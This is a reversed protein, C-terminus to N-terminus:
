RNRRLWILGGLVAALGLIFGAAAPVAPRAALNVLRVDTGTFEFLYDEVEGNTVTGSYSSAPFAPETTFLRFRAYLQKNPCSVTCFTDVPVSVDFLQNAGSTLAQNIVMESAGTLYGDNNFDIWAVLWGSGTVSIKLADAVTIGNGWSNPSMLTVGDDLLDATAGANGPEDIEADPANGLYIQGTATLIHEAGNSGIKTAHYTGDPLDGLDYNVDTVFAFDAFEKSTDVPGTVFDFVEYAGTDYGSPNTTKSFQVAQSNLDTLTTTLNANDLSANTSVIAFGNPVNIFDYNGNVDTVTTSILRAVDGQDILHNSNLDTQLLYLYMMQGSVASEGGSVGGATGITAGCFGDRGVDDLCVTGSITNTGAYRLGIDIGLNCSVCSVGGVATVTGAANIVFSTTQDAVADLPYTVSHNATPLTVVVTFTTEVAPIVRSLSWLGDPDTYIVIPDGADVAIGNITVNQNTTLTLMVAGIGLEGSDQLANGNIDLWVRDGIVATPQYGFDVGTLNAGAPLVVTSQGDCAPLSPYTTSTCTEGDRDPDATQAPSGSISGVKVTYTAPVLGSFTYRGDSDTTTIVDSYGVRSLTIQVGSIGPESADQTGNGNADWFLTDGLASLARFGFDAALYSTTGSSLAHTITTATSAVYPYGFGFVSVGFL